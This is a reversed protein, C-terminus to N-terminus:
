YFDSLLKDYLEGADSKAKDDEYRAKDKQMEVIVTQLMDRLEINNAEKEARRQEKERQRDEAMQKKTELLDRQEQVLNTIDGLQARVFEDREAFQRERAGAEEEETIRQQQKEGEFEARMQRLEEELAYIRADKEEIVRDKEVRLESLLLERERAAGERERAAEERELRVTAMVDTAYQTAAQTAIASITRISERDSGPYEGPEGPEGVFSQDEAKAPAPLTSIRSELDHFIGAARDQAEQARREENERFVRDRQEEQSLFELERQDEAEQAAAATLHLRNAANNLEELQGRSEEAVQFNFPTVTAQRPPPQIVVPHEGAETPARRSPQPLPLATGSPTRTLHSPVQASDSIRHVQAPGTGM